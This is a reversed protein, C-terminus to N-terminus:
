GEQGAKRKRNSTLTFSASLLPASVSSKSIILYSNILKRIKESEIKFQKMFKIQEKLHYFEPGLAQYLFLPELERMLSASVSALECFEVAAQQISATLATKSKFIKFQQSTM